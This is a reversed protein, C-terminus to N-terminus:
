GGGQAKRALTGFGQETLKSAFKAPDAEFAGICKKCCFYVKEGDKLTIFSSPSIEEGSVPCKTQYTYSGALKPQIEDFNSKIKAACQKNCAYYKKGKVLAFAEKNIPDGSFPCTVQVKPLRALAARQKAVAKTYLEFGNMCRHCCLYVPGDDTDISLSFDINDGMFPCKPFDSDEPKEQGEDARTPSNSAIFFSGVLLLSLLIRKM